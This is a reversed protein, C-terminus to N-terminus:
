ADHCRVLKNKDLMKLDPEVLCCPAQRQVCRDAYVCGREQTQCDPQRGPHNAFVEGPLAAKLARTYPHSIRNTQFDDKTLIEMTQGAYLVILKDVIALAAEIDHTILLIGTGQDARKRWYQLIASVLSAHIGTTPEDAIILSPQGLTAMMMLVRRLMGGSLQHPYQNGIDAALAYCDMERAITENIMTPDVGALFATRELQAKIKKLPNLSSITQPVFTVDRGRLMNLRSENLAEGQFMISGGMLVHEPLLGLLAAALLSKGAGSHGIIAAIEGRKLSFTLDTVVPMKKRGLVQDYRDFTVSLHNVDLM